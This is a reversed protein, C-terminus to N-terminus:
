SIVFWSRPTSQNYLSRSTQYKQEVYYDVKSKLMQMCGPGGRPEGFSMDVYCGTLVFDRSPGRVVEYFNAGGKRLGLSRNCLEPNEQQQWFLGQAVKQADNVPLDSEITSLVADEFLAFKNNDHQMWGRRWNQSSQIYVAVVEKLTNYRFHMGNIVKFQIKAYEERFRIIAALTGPSLILRNWDDKGHNFQEADIAAVVSKLIEELHAKSTAEKNMEEQESELLEQHQKAMEAIAAREDGQYYKIFASKLALCFDDDGAGYVLQFLTQNKFIRGSKDECHKIKTFLLNPEADVMALVTAKNTKTPSLIVHHVLKPEHLIPQIAHYFGRCALAFNATNQNGGVCNVIKKLLAQGCNKPSTEATRIVVKKADDNKKESEGEPKDVSNPNTTKKLNRPVTMIKIRM